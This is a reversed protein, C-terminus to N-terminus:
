KAVFGYLYEHREESQHERALYEEVTIQLESQPLAM